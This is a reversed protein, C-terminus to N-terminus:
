SMLELGQRLTYAPPVATPLPTRSVNWAKVTKNRTPAPIESNLETQSETTSFNEESETTSEGDMGGVDIILDDNRSYDDRPVGQISMQKYIRTTKRHLKFICCWIFIMFILFAAISVIIYIFTWPYGSIPLADVITRARDLAIKALIVNDATETLLKESLTELEQPQFRKTIIAMDSIIESMTVLSMDQTNKLVQIWFSANYTKYNNTRISGVSVDLTLEQGTHSPIGIYKTGNHTVDCQPRTLLEGFNEARIMSSMGPVNPDASPCEVKIESSQNSFYLYRGPIIRHIRSQELSSIINCDTTIKDLSRSLIALVCELQPGELQHMERSTLVSAVNSEHGKSIQNGEVLYVTSNGNESDNIPVLVDFGKGLQPLHIEYVNRNEYAKFPLIDIRFHQYAEGMDIVPLEFEITTVGQEKFHLIKTHIQSYFSTLGQGEFKWLLEQGEPLQAKYITLLERLVVPKVLKCSLKGNLASQFYSEADSIQNQMDSLVAHTKSFIHTSSSLSMANLLTGAVVNSESMQKRLEIAARHTSNRLDLIARNVARIQRSHVDLLARSSNATSLLNYNSTTHHHLAEHVAYLDPNTALGLSYALSSGIFNFSVPAEPPAMDNDDENARLARSLVNGKPNAQQHLYLVLIITETMRIADRREIENRGFDADYTDGDELVHDYDELKSGRFLKRGRRDKTQNAGDRFLITRRRRLSPAEPGPRTTWFAMDRVRNELEVMRLTADKLLEFTTYKLQLLFKGLVFSTCKSHMDRDRYAAKSISNRGSCISDIESRPMSQLGGATTDTGFEAQLGEVMSATSTVTERIEAIKDLFQSRRYPIAVTVYKLSTVTPGGPTVQTGISGLNVTQPYVTSNIDDPTGMRSTDGWKSSLNASSYGSGVQVDWMDKILFKTINHISVTEGLSHAEEIANYMGRHIMDPVSATTGLVSAALILSPMLSLLTTRM